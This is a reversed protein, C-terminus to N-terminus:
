FVTYTYLEKIHIFTGGCKNHRNLTHAQLYKQHMHKIPGYVGTSQFSQLLNDKPCGCLLYTENYWKKVTYYLVSEQLTTCYRDKKKKCPAWHCITAYTSSKHEPCTRPANEPMHAQCLGIISTYSPLGITGQCISNPFSPDHM